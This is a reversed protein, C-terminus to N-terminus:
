QTTVEDPAGGYANEDEYLQDRVGEPTLAMGRAALKTALNAARAKEDAVWAQLAEHADFGRVCMAATRSLAKARNKKDQISAVYDRYYYVRSLRYIRLLADLTAVDLTTRNKTKILNQSSFTRESEASSAPIVLMISMLKSLEKYSSVLGGDALFQAAFARVGLGETMLKYKPNTRMETKFQRWETQLVSHGSTAHMSIDVLGPVSAYLSAKPVNTTLGATLHGSAGGLTAGDVKPPVGSSPPLFVRNRDLKLSKQDANHVGLCM